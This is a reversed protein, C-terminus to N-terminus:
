PHEKGYPDRRKAEILLPFGTINDLVMLPLGSRRTGPEYPAIRVQGKHILEVVKARRVARPQAGEIGTKLVVVDMSKPLDLLAFAQPIPQQSEFWAKAIALALGEPQTM